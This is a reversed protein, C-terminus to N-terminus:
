FFMKVEASVLFARYNNEKIAADTHGFWKSRVHLGVRDLADWDFGLGAAMDRYDIPSKEIVPNVEDGRNVWAKQSRWNEYGLLGLLYFKKTVAFAPEARLYLSWLLMDVPKDNLTLPTFSTSVGNIAAYGGLFFNRPYGILPGIDYSGDLELNFTYKRHVPVFGSTSVVSDIGGATHITDLRTEYISTEYLFGRADRVARSHINHFAQASDEYPVFGEYLSFYDSRLGGAEPGTQGASQPPLYSEDGLRKTYKKNSPSLDDVLGTGWKYYTSYLTSNFDQGNLRYPFFLLDRAQEMQFHQGYKVKLHGNGNLKPAVTLQLGAMNQVYPSAEGEIFKGEGMLNAGFPIFADMASVFSFPANYGRPIVALDTEVAVKSDYRLNTFLAPVPNASHKETNKITMPVGIGAFVSDSVVWITDVRSLGVDALISLRKTLQGRLDISLVRPEKYFGRGYSVIISDGALGNPNPIKEASKSGTINFTQNFLMGDPSQAFVYDRSFNVMNFNLGLTLRKDFKKSLRTHFIHRYADTIGTETISGTDGAYALDNALDIYDRENADYAEIDGYLVNLDFDLPLQITELDIGTFGKKNWAARGTKEGKAINYDYYSSIAEEDEYPLYEWAFSRPQAKWLSLPSAEVWQVAGLKLWFSVPVTRVAIGANMDEYINVFRSNSSHLGPVQVFGPRLPYEPDSPGPVRNGPLTHFFGLNTWLTMNRNPHVILGFRLISEEWGTQLYSRDGNITDKAGIQTVPGLYPPCVYYNHWQGKLRAIGSFAVPASTADVLTSLVKQQLADVNKMASDIRAETAASLHEALTSEGAAPGFLGSLILGAALAAGGTLQNRIRLASRM